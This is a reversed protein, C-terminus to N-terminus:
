TAGRGTHPGACGRKAAGPRAATSPAVGRLRDIDRDWHQRHHQLGKPQRCRQDSRAISYRLGGGAAQEFELAQQPLTGCRRCRDRHSWYFDMLAQAGRPDDISFLGTAAAKRAAPEESQLQASLAGVESEPALSDLSLETLQQVLQDRQQEVEALRASLQAVDDSRPVATLERQGEVEVTPQLGADTSTTSNPSAGGDVGTRGFLWSFFGVVVIAVVWAAPKVIEAKAAGSAGIRALTEQHTRLDTAERAQYTVNSLATTVKNPLVTRIGVQAPPLAGEALAKHMPPDMDALQARFKDIDERSVAPIVSVIADAVSTTADSEAPKMVAYDLATMRRRTPPSQPAATAAIEDDKKAM